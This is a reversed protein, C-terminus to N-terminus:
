EDKGEKEEERDEERELFRAAFGGDAEWVIDRVNREHVALAQGHWLSRRYM